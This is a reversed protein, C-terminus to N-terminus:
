QMSYYHDVCFPLLLLMKAVYVLVLGNGLGELPEALIAKIVVNVFGVPPPDCDMSQSVGGWM